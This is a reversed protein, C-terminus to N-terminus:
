GIDDNTLLLSYLYHLKFIIIGIAMVAAQSRDKHDLTM